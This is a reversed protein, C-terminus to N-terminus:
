NRPRDRWAVGRAQVFGIVLERLAHDTATVADMLLKLQEVVRGSNEGVGKLDESGAGLRGLLFGIASSDAFHFRVASMNWGLSLGPESDVAAHSFHYGSRMANVDYHAGVKNRAFLLLRRFPSDTTPRDAAIEVLDNWAERAPQHMRRVVERLFAHETASHNEALLNLLEHILSFWLRLVHFTFGNQRLRQPTIIDGVEVSHVLKWAWMLNRNDNHVLALTLVLDCISQPVAEDSNFARADFYNL